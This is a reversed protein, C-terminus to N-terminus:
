KRLTSAARKVAKGAARDTTIQAQARMRDMTMWYEALARCGKDNLVIATNPKKGAFSKTITVLGAEELKSLQVSLNGRTLGTVRQLYVFDANGCSSLVTLISLRAPEHILKDPQAITEPAESSSMLLLEM